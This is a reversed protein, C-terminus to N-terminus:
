YYVYMIGSAMQIKYMKEPEENIKTFKFCNLLSILQLKYGNINICVYSKKKIIPFKSQWVHNKK